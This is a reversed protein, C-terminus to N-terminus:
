ADPINKFSSMNNSTDITPSYFHLQTGSKSIKVDNDVTNFLKYNINAKIEKIPTFLSIDWINSEINTNIKNNFIFDFVDSRFNQIVKLVSKTNGGLLINKNNINQVKSNAPDSTKYNNLIVKLNEHGDTIVNNIYSTDGLIGRVNRESFEILLVNIKSQDLNTKLKEQNNTKIMTLKNVGCFFKESAFFSWLYSDCITYLDVKATDMCRVPTVIKDVKYHTRFYSYYSAYRLPRALLGNIRDLFPLLRPKIFM